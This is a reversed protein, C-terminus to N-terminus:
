AWNKTEQLKSEFLIPAKPPFIDFLNSNMM